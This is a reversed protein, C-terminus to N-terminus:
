NQILQSLRVRVKHGQKGEPGSPSNNHSTNANFCVYPLSVHSVVLPAVSHTLCRNNNCERVTEGEVASHQWIAIMVDDAVASRTLTLM